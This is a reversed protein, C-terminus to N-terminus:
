ITYTITLKAKNEDDYTVGDVINNTDDAPPTSSIDLSSRLIFKTLGGQNIWNRGNSNLTVDYYKDSTIIATNIQGGNNSYRSYDYDSNIIPNHPYNPQGNQIILDFEKTIVGHPDFYYISLIASTITVGVPIASTDFFLCTRYIDYGWGGASEHSQGITIEGADSIYIQVLDAGNISDHCKSYDPDSMDIFKVPSSDGIISNIITEVTQQGGGEEGSYDVEVEKPEQKIKKSHGLIKPSEKCGNEFGITVIEGVSFMADYSLTEVDPISGDANDIKVDYTGDGNDKTVEGTTVTNKYKIQKNANKIISDIFDSM